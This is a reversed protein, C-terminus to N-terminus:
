SVLWLRSYRYLYQQHSKEYIPLGNTGTKYFKFKGIMARQMSKVPESARILVSQCCELIYTEANLIRLVFNRTLFNELLNLFSKLSHKGKNNIYRTATSRPKEKLKMDENPPEM